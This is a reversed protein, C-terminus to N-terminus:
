IAALLGSPHSYPILHLTSFGTFVLCMGDFWTMKLSPQSEQLTHLLQFSFLKGIAWCIWMSSDLMRGKFSAQRAGPWTQVWFHLVIPLFVVHAVEGQWRGLHQRGMTFCSSVPLLAGPFTGSSWAESREGCLFFSALSLRMHARIKTFVLRWPFLARTLVPKLTVAALSAWAIVAAELSFCAGPFM